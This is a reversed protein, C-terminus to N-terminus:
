WLKLPSIVHGSFDANSERGAGGSQGVNAIDPCGEEIPKKGAMMATFEDDSNFISILRTQDRPRDFGHQVTETPQVDIPVLAGLNAAGIPRVVLRLSQLYVVVQSLFQNGLAIGVV